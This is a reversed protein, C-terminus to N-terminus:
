PPATRNDRRSTAAVNRTPATAPQEADAFGNSVEAGADAGLAGATVLRGGTVGLKAGLVGVVGADVDDAVDDAGAEFVVWGGFGGVRAGDSM